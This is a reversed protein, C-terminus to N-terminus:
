GARGSASSKPTFAQGAHDVPEASARELQQADETV